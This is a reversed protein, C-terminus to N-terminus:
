VIYLLAAFRHEAASLYFGRLKLYAGVLWEAQGKDATWGGPYVQSRELAAASFRKGLSEPDLGALAEAVATVEESELYRAPGYGLDAGLPKGGLVAAGLPGPADAASGCLLFHVGHWAKELDLEEGVDRDAVAAAGPSTHQQKTLERRASEPMTVLQARLLAVMDIRAEAPMSAIMKRMHGPLLRVLAAVEDEAGERQSGRRIVAATLSPRAKLRTLLGPSVQRFHGLMSMRGAEKEPGGLVPILQL